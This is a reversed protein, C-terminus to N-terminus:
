VDSRLLEEAQRCPCGPARHSVLNRLVQVPVGPSERKMEEVKGEIYRELEAHFAAIRDELPLEPQPKIKM